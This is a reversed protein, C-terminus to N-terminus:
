LAGESQPAMVGRHLDDSAMRIARASASWAARIGDPLDAWEPMARGDYTKGGTHAAYAEYGLRGLDVDHM